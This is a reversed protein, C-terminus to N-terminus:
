PAAEWLMVRNNGTDAVAVLDGCTAVAFPWCLSERTAFKWRNDGKLVFSQQGAVATAYALVYEALLVPVTARWGQRTPDLARAEAKRDFRLSTLQDGHIRRYYLDGSLRHFPGWLALEALIIREGRPLPKYPQIRGLLERRTMGYWNIGGQVVLVDWFRDAPSPDAFRLPRITRFGLAEISPEPATTTTAAHLLEFGVRERGDAGLGPPM